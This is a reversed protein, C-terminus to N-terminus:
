DASPPQQRLLAVMGLVGSEDGLAAREVRLGDLPLRRAMSKMTQRAPEFILEPSNMVGGGLVIANPDFISVYSALANGLAFAAVRFIEACDQDGQQAAEAILKATPPGGDMLRALVPAKGADLMEQARWAMATGSAIAELCGRAGCPCVPGGMAVVIHGLEGAAGHKGRYLQGDIIIGGGVGTSITLYLMHRSGTGAGFTLEGFAAANADNDLLVPLGLQEQLLDRLPVDKWGPLQPAESVVGREFDIAGPSAVGVASLDSRQLGATALAMDLSVSIRALVAELGEKTLSPRLDRSLIEGDSAAITSLLKTGGLDIAGFLPRKDRSM